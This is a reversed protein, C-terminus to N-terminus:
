PYISHEIVHVFRVHRAECMEGRHEQEELGQIDVCTWGKHPVGAETWKGTGTTEATM